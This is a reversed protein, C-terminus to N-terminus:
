VNPTENLCKASTLPHPMVAPPPLSFPRLVHQADTHRTLRPRSSSSYGGQYHVNISSNWRRDFRRPLCPLSYSCNVDSVPPCPVWHLCGPPLYRTKNLCIAAYEECHPKVSHSHSRAPSQLEAYQLIVGLMPCYPCPLRADERLPVRRSSMVMILQCTYIATLLSPRMLSNGPLIHPQPTTM